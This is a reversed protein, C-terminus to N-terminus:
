TIAVTYTVVRSSYNIVQLLLPATTSSGHVSLQCASRNTPDGLGTAQGTASGLTVGGQYINCGVAHAQGADFPQYTFTVTRPGAGASALLYSAFAGGSQGALMGGQPQGATIAVPAPATSITARPTARLLSAYPDIATLQKEPACEACVFSSGTPYHIEVHLQPYGAANGTDGIVGLPPSAPSPNIPVSRRCSPM